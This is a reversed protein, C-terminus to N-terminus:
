RFERDLRRRYLWIASGLAWGLFGLLLYGIGPIDNGVVGDFLMALVAYALWAAGVGITYFFYPIFRLPLRMPLVFATAVLMLAQLLLLLWSAFSLLM